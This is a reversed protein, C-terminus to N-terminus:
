SKVSLTLQQARAIQDVPISVYDYHTYDTTLIEGDWAIIDLDITRPGSKIPGRQRGLRDEISKLLGNFQEYDLETEVLYATNLFNPQQQFGVPATEIVNAAALFRTEKALIEQSLSINEEPCINSGASIIVQHPVQPATCNNDIM